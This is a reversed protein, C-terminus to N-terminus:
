EFPKRKNGISDTFANAVALLTRIDLDITTGKMKVQKYDSDNKHELHYMLTAAWRHHGDVIYNDKSVIVAATWPRWKVDPNNSVAYMGESKDKSIENQTASLKQIDISKTSIKVKDKKKDGSTLFQQSIIVSHDSVPHGKKSVDYGFSKLQKPDTTLLGKSLLDIFLDVQKDEIVPM